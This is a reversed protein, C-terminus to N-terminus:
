PTTQSQETSDESLIGHTLLQEVIMDAVVAHGWANWHGDVQYYLNPQRRKTPVEILPVSRQRCRRQLELLREGEIDVAIIAVPWDEAQCIAVSREILAYTLADTNPRSSPVPRQSDYERRSDSRNARREGSMSAVQRVLGILHLYPLAPVVEIVAQAKRQWGAPPVPQEILDGSASLAFFGERLNDGFDNSCMQLVVLRPGYRKAEDRLFKIWRGNGNDGMGVNIVPIKDPGYRAALVSRVLSPFEEGDNVGYGLTFSDGLFLVGGKRLSTFEPGRFGLSNTTLRMTFEPTIRSCTFSKKLRKGYVPDYTTFSPGVDRVPVVLRVLMEAVSICIVLTALMLCLKKLLSRQCHEPRPQSSQSQDPQTRAQLPLQQQSM